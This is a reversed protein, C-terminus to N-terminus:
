KNLIKRLENFSEIQLNLAVEIKNILTDVQQADPSADPQVDPVSVLPGGCDPSSSRLSTPVSIAPM